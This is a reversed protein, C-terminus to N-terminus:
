QAVGGDMGGGRQRKALKERQVTEVSQSPEVSLATVTCSSLLLLILYKMGTSYM